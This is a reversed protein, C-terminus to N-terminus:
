IKGSGNVVEYHHGFMEVGYPLFALISIGTVLDAFLEEVLKKDKKSPYMLVDAQNLAYDIKQQTQLDLVPIISSSIYAEIKAKVAVPIATNLWNPNVDGAWDFKTINLQM